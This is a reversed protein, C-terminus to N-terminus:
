GSPKRSRPSDQRGARTNADASSACSATGPLWTAEIDLEDWKEAHGVYDIRTDYHGLLYPFATHKERYGLMNLAATRGQREAVV